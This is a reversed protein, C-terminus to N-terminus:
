PGWVIFPPSGPLLNRIAAVALMQPANQGVGRDFPVIASITRESPRRNKVDSAKPFLLRSQTALDGADLGQHM